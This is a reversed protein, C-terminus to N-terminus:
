DYICQQKDLSDEPAEKELSAERFRKDVFDIFLRKIYEIM